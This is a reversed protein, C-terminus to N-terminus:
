REALAPRRWRLTLISEFLVFAILLGALGHWLEVRRKPLPRGPQATAPRDPRREPALREPNSEAPDVNVVFGDAPRSVLMGDVGAARVQYAGPTDTETFTFTRPTANRDKSAVWVSGDPKTIEIRRDDTGLTIDRRQGVTLVSTGGRDSAGSLRRAAQEVLPLFGARIPLDTWDRDITTGLIMVRGKGVTKEVLAPAGSEYRLIVTAGATDPVPELLLFKFFRASALGEGRAPFNALLPHRRDLPALRAAPREDITEGAAQGPLAAATRTLALPQPLLAALRENWIASDVKDGVSLFLGGGAEVFGQLATALAPRPDAVNALFVVNFAGLRDDAVDEPLTTTVSTGRDGTKLATELFFAEDERAVSRADGNIVLVRLAESLSLRALRRDDIPFDDPDIAIEVDHAGGGPLAHFFTKKQRGNAPLEVFSKSVVADDIKLMVGLAPVPTSSFNAIEVEVAVSGTGLDPAPHATVAVVARNNVTGGAVELLVIEPDGEHRTLPSEGWGAAQLDTIVFIRRERKQSSGLLTTARRIAEPYDAARASPKSAELAELVRMRELSLEGVRAESGASAVLLAVDAAPPLQRLLTRAREKAKDFLLEGGTRASMSASDDLVIVASQEGLSEEPLDSVKESFPRAFIIPLAAAISTRAILLLIERLRRRAAIRREAQLLLQMAAFKVPTARRKGILHILYPLAAALLGFLVAPALFGM